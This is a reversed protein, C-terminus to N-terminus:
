TERFLRILDRVTKVLGMKQVRLLLADREEPSRLPVLQRWIKEPTKIIKKQLSSAVEGDLESKHGVEFNELYHPLAPSYKLFSNACDILIIKEHVFDYLYNANHRDQQGTVWDFLGCDYVDQTSLKLPGTRSTFLFADPIPLWVQVTTKKDLLCLSPVLLKLYKAICFAWFEREALTGSHQNIRCNEHNKDSVGKLFLKQDQYVYLEQRATQGRSPFHSMGLKQAKGHKVIRRLIVKAPFGM